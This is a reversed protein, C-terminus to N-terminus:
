TGSVRILKGDDTSIWIAGDKATRLSRLRGMQGAFLEEQKSVKKGKLVVRQLKQTALCALFFNGKWNPFMKGEYALLASPSISPVWYAIPQEMGKKHTGEGISGGSYEKGYTIVPWGYNKGQEIFNLEDGGQPGFEASWLEKSSAMWYLGQPNRHGYSHVKPNSGDIQMQIIKGVDANLDQPLSRDNRDGISVFLSKDDPFVIRSGFHIANTNSPRAEWLVRAQNLQLDKLVARAVATTYTGDAKKLTFTWFIDQTKPHVAVDLLGGQGHVESPLMGQVERAAKDGIKYRFLKGNKQAFVIEGSSLFDFGWIQENQDLIVEARINMGESVTTWPQATSILTLFILSSM